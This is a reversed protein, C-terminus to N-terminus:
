CLSGMEALLIIIHTEPPALDVLPVPVVRDKCASGFFTSRPRPAPASQASACQPCPSSIAQLAKEHSNLAFIEMEERTIGWKQAIMNASNFQSVEIDGFREMWGKSGRFPDDFGLEKGAIMASTANVVAAHSASSNYIDILFQPYTNTYEGDGYTIWDSKGTEVIRPATQQKLYVQLLRNDM